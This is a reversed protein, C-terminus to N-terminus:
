PWKMLATIVNRIMAATIKKRTTLGSLASAARRLAPPVGSGSAGASSM